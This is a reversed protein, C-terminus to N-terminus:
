LTGFNCISFHAMVNSFHSFATIILFRHFSVLLHIHSPHCGWTLCSHDTNEAQPAAQENDLHTRPVQIELHKGRDFDIVEGCYTVGGEEVM